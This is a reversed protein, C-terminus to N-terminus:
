SQQGQRNSPLNSQCAQWASQFQPSNKGQGSPDPFKSVGHARMCQAYKFANAAARKALTLNGIASHNRACGPEAPVSSM